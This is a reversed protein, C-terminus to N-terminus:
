SVVHLIVGYVVVSLIAIAITNILFFQYTKIRLAYAISKHYMWFVLIIVGTNLFFSLSIGIIPFTLSLFLGLMWSLTFLVLVISFWYATIVHINTKLIYTKFLRTVIFYMLRSYLLIALQLLLYITIFSILIVSLSFLNIKITEESIDSFFTGIALVSLVIALIPLLSFALMKYILQKIYISGETIAHTAIHNNSPTILGKLLRYFVLLPANKYSIELFHNTSYKDQAKIENKEYTTMEKDELGFNKFYAEDKSINNEKSM